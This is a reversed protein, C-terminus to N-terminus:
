GTIGAKRLLRRVNEVMSRVSSFKGRASFTQVTTQWRNWMKERGDKDVHPYILVNAMQMDKEAQLRPMQYWLNLWQATTLGLQASPGLGYFMAISAEM